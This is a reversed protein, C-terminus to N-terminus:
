QNQNKLRRTLEKLEKRASKIYGKGRAIEEQEQRIFKKSDKIHGKEEKISNKIELIQKSIDDFELKGNEDVNMILYDRESRRCEYALDPISEQNVVIVKKPMTKNKYMMKNKNLSVKLM